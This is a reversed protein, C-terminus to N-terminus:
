TILTGLDPHELVEEFSHKSSNYVLIPVGSEQCLAVATLDLVKLGKALYENFSIQSYRSATEDKRPDRDYVGDVHTTAKLLVDAKLEAARLAAATDTTFFPHGTGGPLLLVMGQELACRGKKWDFKEAVGEISISSLVKNTIGANTLAESFILANMVTALMGAQDAAARAIGLEKFREGGRFFNGAGFVISIQIKKLLLSQLSFILRSVKKPCIGGESSQGLAEGSIKLLIKKPAFHM